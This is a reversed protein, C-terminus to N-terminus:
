LREAIKGAWSILLGALLFKDAALRAKNLAQDELARTTQLVALVAMASFFLTVCIAAPAVSWVKLFEGRSLAILAHTVGCGPCPWGTLWQFLCIGPLAHGGADAANAIVVYVVFGAPPAWLRIHRM